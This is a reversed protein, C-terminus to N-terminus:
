PRRRVTIAAEGSKPPTGSGAAEARVVARGPEVATVTGTSDVRAVNVNNSSWHYRVGTPIANGDADYALATLKHTAGVNLTVAAPAVQVEAVAKQARSVGPTTLLVLAVLALVPRNTM